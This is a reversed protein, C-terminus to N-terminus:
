GMKLSSGASFKLKSCGKKREIGVGSNLYPLVVSLAWNSTKNCLIGNFHGMLQTTTCHQKSRGSENLVHPSTQLRSFRLIYPHPSDNMCRAIQGLMVSNYSVRQFKFPCILDILRQKQLSSLRHILFKSINKFPDLFIQM